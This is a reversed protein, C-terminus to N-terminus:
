MTSYPPPHRHSPNVEARVQYCRCGRGQGRGPWTLGGTSCAPPVWFLTTHEPARPNLRPDSQGPSSRSGNRTPLILHLWLLSSTIWSVCNFDLHLFHHEDLSVCSCYKTRPFFPHSLAMKCRKTKKNTRQVPCLDRQRLVGRPHNGLLLNQIQLDWRQSVSSKIHISVSTGKKLASFLRWVSRNASVARCGGM